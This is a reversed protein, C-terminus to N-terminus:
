CPPSTGPSLRAAPAHQGCPLQSAAQPHCPHRAAIGSSLGTLVARARRCAVWTAGRRVQVCAEAIGAQAMGIDAPRFLAEAAMFRENNLPLIHDEPPPRPAPLGNQPPCHSSAAQTATMLACRPGGWRAPTTCHSQRVQEARRAAEKEKELDRIYGRVNSLGDPLVYELRHPSTQPKAARRLDEVVDPSVFATAEKVIDM